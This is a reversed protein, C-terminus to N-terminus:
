RRKELLGVLEREGRRRAKGLPTEGLVNRVDSRAGAELLLAVIKPRVRSRSGVADHLPTSAGPADGADVRAGHALLLKVVPLRGHYAAMHLPTTRSPPRGDLLNPDAGARLLAKAADTAGFQAAWRLPRSAETGNVVAGRAVLLDIVAAKCTVAQALLEDPSSGRALLARIAKLDGSRVIQGPDAAQAARERATPPAIKEVLPSGEGSDYTAKITGAKAHAALQELLGCTVDWFSSPFSGDVDITLSLGVVKLDDLAFASEEFCGDDDEEALERLARKVAARNEFRLTGRFRQDCSM